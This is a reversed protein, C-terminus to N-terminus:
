GMNRTLPTDGPGLMTIASITSVWAQAIPCEAGAPMRHERVQIRSGAVLIREQGPAAVAM